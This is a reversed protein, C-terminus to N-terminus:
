QLLDERALLSQYPINPWTSPYREALPKASLYLIFLPILRIVLTQLVELYIHSPKQHTTRLLNPHTPIPVTTHLFIKKHYQNRNYTSGKLYHNTLPSYPSRGKTVICEPSPSLTGVLGSHQFCHLVFFTILTLWM